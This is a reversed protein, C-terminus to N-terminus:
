PHGKDKEEEEKKKLLERGILENNQLMNMIDDLKKVTMGRKRVNRCISNIIHYWKKLRKVIM